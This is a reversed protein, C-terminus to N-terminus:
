AGVLFWHASAWGGPDEAVRRLAAGESAPHGRRQYAPDTSVSVADRPVKRGHDIVALALREVEKEVREEM